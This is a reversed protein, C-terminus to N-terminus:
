AAERQPKPGWLVEYPLGLKKAILNKTPFSEVDGNVVQTILGRTVDRERAIDAMKICRMKLLAKIFAPDLGRHAGM